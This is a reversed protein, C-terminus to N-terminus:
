RELEIRWTAIVM